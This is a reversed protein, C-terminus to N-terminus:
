VLKGRADVTLSTVSGDDNKLWVVDELNIAPCIHNPIVRVREGIKPKRDCQSIDVEGHEESLRVIKAQPYAPLHGHGGHEPDFGLRDQTLTKSGADIVVKGPVADSIVTCLLQAACDEERVLGPAGENWDNYIYTGPRIETMEPIFHSQLATPTSGGSVIKTELSARAIADITERVFKSIEKMAAEHVNPEGRSKLQGPFFFLGDYRLGPTSAVYKALSVASETDQVGTRHFGVDLDVLVGVTAGAEHAAKGIADAAFTSDIAVRITNKRALEALRKSRYPDVAPYAILLDNSAQLMVEAEGLKAVTLGSAGHAIQRKAMVISKHTKTHPRLKLNHKRCYEAMAALNREVVKPDIVM